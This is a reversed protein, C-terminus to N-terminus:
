PGKLDFVHVRESYRKSKQLTTCVALLPGRGGDVQEYGNRIEKVSSNAAPAACLPTDRPPSPFHPRHAGGEEAGQRQWLGGEPPGPLLGLLLGRPTALRQLHLVASDGAGTPILSSGATGGPGLARSRCCWPRQRWDQVWSLHM